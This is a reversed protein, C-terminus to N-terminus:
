RRWIHYGTGAPVVRVFWKHKGRRLQSAEKTAERKTACWDFLFYVKGNFMRQSGPKLGM